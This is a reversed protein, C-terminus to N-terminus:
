KAKCYLVIKNNVTGVYMLWAPHGYKTLEINLKYAAAEIPIKKIPQRVNTYKTPKTWIDRDDDYM